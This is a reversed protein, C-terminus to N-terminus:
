NISIAGNMTTYLSWPVHSSMLLDNFPQSKPKDMAITKFVSLPVALM